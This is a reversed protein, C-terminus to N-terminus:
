DGGGQVYIWLLWHVFIPNDILTSSFIDLILIKVLINWLNFQPVQKQSPPVFIIKRPQLSGDRSAILKKWENTFSPNYASHTLEIIKILFQVYIM